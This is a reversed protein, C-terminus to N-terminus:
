SGTYNGSATAVLDLVYTTSTTALDIITENSYMEKWLDTMAWHPYNGLNYLPTAILPLFIATVMVCVFNLLTGVKIMDITELHGYSFAIANPPTAIPM